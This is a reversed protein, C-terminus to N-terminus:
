QNLTLEKYIKCIHVLFSKSITAKKKGKKKSNWCIHRFDFQQALTTNSYTM